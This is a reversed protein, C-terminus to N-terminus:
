RTCSRRVAKGVRADRHLKIAAKETEKAAAEEQAPTLEDGYDAGPTKNEDVTETPPTDDEGERIQYTPTPIHRPYTFKKIM